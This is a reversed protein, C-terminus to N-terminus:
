SSVFYMVPTAIALGVPLGAVTVMVTVSLVPVTIAVDEPTSGGNVLISPRRRDRGAGKVLRLWIAPVCPVTRNVVVVPATTTRPRRAFPVARVDIGTREWASTNLNM